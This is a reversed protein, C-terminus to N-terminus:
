IEWGLIAQAVMLQHRMTERHLSNQSVSSHASLLWEQGGERENGGIISVSFGFVSNGLRGQALHSWTVQNPGIILLPLRAPTEPFIKRKQRIRTSFESINDKVMKFAAGCVSPVYLAPAAMRPGYHCLCTCSFSPLGSLYFSGPPCLQAALSSPWKQFHQM